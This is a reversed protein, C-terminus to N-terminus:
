RNSYYLGLSFYNRKFSNNKKRQSNKMCANAPQEKVPTQTVTFRSRDGPSEKTNQSIEAITFDPHDRNKKQNGIGGTEEGLSKPVSGLAGVVIPIVTVRTNWLMEQEWAFDLYKHIKGNEAHDASIYFRCNLLNEKEKSKKKKNTLVQDPKWAPILSDM